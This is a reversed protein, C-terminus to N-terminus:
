LNCFLREIFGIIGTSYYLSFKLSISNFEGKRCFYDQPGSAPKYRMKVSTGDLYGAVYPFGTEEFTKEMSARLEQKSPAKILVDRLGTIANIGQM